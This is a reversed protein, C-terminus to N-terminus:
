RAFMYEQYEVIKFSKWAEDSSAEIPCISSVHYGMEAIKLMQVAHNCDINCVVRIQYHAIFIRDSFQWQDCRFNPM